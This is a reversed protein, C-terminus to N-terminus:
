CRPRALLQGDGLEGRQDPLGAALIRSWSSNSCRGVKSTSTCRRQGDTSFARSSSPSPPGPRGARRTQGLGDLPQALLCAAPRGRSGAHVIPGRDAKVPGSGVVLAAAGAIGLGASPRRQGALERRPGPGCRRRGRAGSGALQGPQQERRSRPHDGDLRHGPHALLQHACWAAPQLREVAGGLLDRTPSRLASATM